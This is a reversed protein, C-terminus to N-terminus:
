RSEKAPKAVANSRLLKEYRKGGAQFYASLKAELDWQAKAKPSSGLFSRCPDPPDPIGPKVGACQVAIKQAAVESWLADGHIFSHQFSERALRILDEAGLGYRKFGYIWESTYDAHSVGEDDTSFATPVGHGLYQLFPHQLGAVGLIQANSTFMIEVLASNQKMLDAVDSKDKESLYAFSVGHGIRKAGAKLSGTLHEKLSPNGAGVFCPTLEGAHLAINVNPFKNHLYTFFQMQTAFSNMSVSADEGSLLNIGVVRNDTSSLLFSFAAQAFIKALDPSGDKLAANRNVAALFAFSVGCAPDKGSLGCKLIANTRNVYMTVDNQAGAVADQLGASMLFAYMAPYNGSNQYSANDPFKQRLFSALTSVAQTQFSVMTEVYSVRDNNAQQLLSALMPGTNWPVGSIAGFRGFTAFFQDHGLQISPYGFQFMSLSRIIKNRELERATAIPQFPANCAGSAGATAITYMAPNAPDSGYCDGDSKGMSAYEEPMVTGSLHNHIDAGKPFMQLAKVLEPQQERTQQILGFYERVATNPQTCTVTAAPATRAFPEHDYTAAFSALPSSLCLALISVVRVSFMVASADKIM